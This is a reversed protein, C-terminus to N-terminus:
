ALVKLLNTRPYLYREVLMQNIVGHIQVMDFVFKQTLVLHLDRVLVAVQNRFGRPRSTDLRSHLLRALNDERIPGLLLPRRSSSPSATSKEPLPWIPHRRRAPHSSVTSARASLPESPSSTCM